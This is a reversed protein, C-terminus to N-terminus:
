PTREILRWAESELRHLRDYEASTDINFWDHRAMDALYNDRRKLEALLAKAANRLFPRVREDTQMAQLMQRPDNM